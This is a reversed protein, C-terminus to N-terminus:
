TREFHYWEFAQTGKGLRMRYYSHSYRSLHTKRAVGQIHSSLCSKGDSFLAVRLAMCRSRGDVLQHKIVAPRSDVRAM